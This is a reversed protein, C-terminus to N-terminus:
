AYIPQPHEMHEYACLLTEAVRDWSFHEMVRQRGACGLTARLADDRLLHLIAEALAPANDREVLLGTKGAEVVEPIGGARTAVTPRGCAMAEILSMGFAENCVSPLVVIDAKRYYNNLTSHAVPGHFSVRSLPDESLRSRLDALYSSDRTLLLKELREFVTRGYFSALGAVVDDETSLGVLFTYALLRSPGVVDLQVHPDVQAVIRFADFLVHVGKEPSIRGVYLLRKGVEAETAGLLAPDAFHDTDVGNYVTHCRHALQPFRRQIHQTIHASCGLILDVHQLRAEIMTRDLLALWECHMHLVIKIQPNVARIVPVFQSFNHLHVADCHQRRLDHAVQRAFGWFYLSSAFLPRKPNGLRSVRELLTFPKLLWDEGTYPLRRVQLGEEDNTVRPQGRRRRAYLIVEHGTRVLRRASQYTLNPTSGDADFPLAIEQLPHIVFAIKM